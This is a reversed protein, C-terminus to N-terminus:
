HTLDTRFTLCLNVITDFLSICYLIKVGFFKALASFLIYAVFYFLTPDSWFFKLNLARYTLGAVPFPNGEKLAKERVILIKEEATIDMVDKDLITDLLRSDYDDKRRGRNFDKAFTNIYNRWSELMVLRSKLLIQLILLLCGLGLHIWGLINFILKFWPPEYDITENQVTAKELMVFLFGNLIFSVILALDRVYNLYIPRIGRRKTMEFTHDMQNSFSPAFSLFDAVKENSSDRRVEELIHIKFDSDAYNCAPHKLFYVKQISSYFNIEIHVSNAKFFEYAKLDVGSLNAIKETYLKASDEVICIFFFINFGLKIHEDFTKTKVKMILDNDMPKAKLAQVFDLYTTKIRNMLYDFEINYGIYEIIDSQLNLELISLLLKITKNFLTYITMRDLDNSLNFGRSALDQSNSNLDNIFDKCFDLVKCKVVREQNGRCPGQLAEILFDMLSIGIAACERNFFKVFSGFMVVSHNIFDISEAGRQENGVSQDRLYNQLDAYHGECLLQFLRMIKQFTQVSKNFGQFQYLAFSNQGFFIKRMQDSNHTMMLQALSEFSNLLVTEIKKLITSSTPLKLVRFFEAQGKSNGELLIQSAVDIAVEIISSKENSVIIKCLLDVTGIEILFEQAALLASKSKTNSKDGVVSKDAYERFIKLGTEVTSDDVNNQPQLYAVLSTFFRSFSSPSASDNSPENRVLDKLEHAALQEFERSNIFENTKTKFVISEMNENLAKSTIAAVHNNLSVKRFVTSLQEQRIEREDTFKSVGFISSIGRLRGSSEQLNKNTKENQDNHLNSADMKTMGSKKTIAQIFIELPEILAKVRINKMSLDAFTHISSNAAYLLNQLQEPDNKAGSTKIILDFLCRLTDSSSRLLDYIVDSHSVLEKHTLFYSESPIGEKIQVLCRTMINLLERCIMFKTFSSSANQDLETSIYVHFTFKCLEHELMPPKDKIQFLEALEKAAILSQAIKEAFSNKDFCCITIIELFAMCFCLQDSLLNVKKDEWNIIKYPEVIDKRINSVLGSQRFYSFLAHMSNSILHSMLLSQNNRITVEDLIALQQATYLYYAMRMVKKSERAMNSCIATLFKNTLYQDTLIARNNKILENVMVIANNCLSDNQLHHLVHDGVERLVIEKNLINNHILQSLVQYMLYVISEKKSFNMPKIDKQIAHNLISCIFEISQSNRVLDQVFPSLGELLGTLHAQLFTNENVSIPMTEDNNEEFEDDLKEDKGHLLCEMRKLLTKLQLVDDNERVSYWSEKKETLKFLVKAYDQCSDLAKVQTDHEIIQIETLRKGLCAAESYLTHLLDLSISKLNQDDYLSQKLLLNVLFDNKVILKDSQNQVVQLFLSEFSNDGLGKAREREGRVLNKVSHAINAAGRKEHTTKYMAILKNARQDTKIETFLKLLSCVKIKIEICSEIIAPDRKQDGETDSLEGDLQKEETVFEDTLILVEVLAEFITVFNSYDNFFGLLIMKRCMVITSLLFESYDERLRPGSKMRINSMFKLLYTKLEEFKDLSGALKNNVALSNKEVGSWLKINDPFKINMFPYVDIWLSTTLTCFASRLSYPYEDSCIIQSCVSLPLYEQLIDIAKYNREQCLAGLLSIMATYFAYYSGGDIRESEDEFSALSMWQKTMEKGWPSRIVVKGGELKLETLIKKRKANDKLVIESIARQNRVMPKGNCICIARLIDIYKKDGKSEILNFVFKDITGTRIQAELIRENNDLLETLTSNAGLSDDLGSLSYDILLNLWQSAYLENPRYEMIGCRITTYCLQIMQAAYINRHVKEIEYFQNKFPYHILEMLVEILNLDKIIKQRSQVPEHSKDIRRYDFEPSYELDYIFCVINLLLFEVEILHQQNTLSKQKYKFLRALKIIDALCSRVFLMDRKISDSILSFQYGEELDPSTKLVAKIRKEDFHGDELPTFSIEKELEVTKVNSELIRWLLYEQSNSLVEDPDEASAVKYSHNAYVKNLGFQIPEATLRLPDQRIAGPDVLLKELTLNKREDL